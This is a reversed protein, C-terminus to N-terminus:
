VIVQKFFNLGSTEDSKRNAHVASGLRHAARGQNLVKGVKGQKDLGVHTM